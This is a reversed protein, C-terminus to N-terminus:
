NPTATAAPDTEPKVTLKSTEVKFVDIAQMLANWQELNAQSDSKERLAVAEQRITQVKSRLQEITQNLVEGTDQFHDHKRLQLNVTLNGAAVEKLRREIMFIPGAIKHSARLTYFYIILLGGFEGAALAMALTFKLRFIDKVTEIAFFSVIVLMNIFIFTILIIEVIM